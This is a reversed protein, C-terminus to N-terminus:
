ASAAMLCQPNSNPNSALAGSVAAAADRCALRGAVHLRGGRRLEEFGSPSQGQPPDVLISHSRSRAQNLLPQTEARWDFPPMCGVAVGRSGSVLGAKPDLNALLMVRARQACSWRGAPMRARERGGRASGGTLVGQPKSLRWARRDAPTLGGLVDRMRARAVVDRARYVVEGAAGLRAFQRANGAGVAERHPLLLTPAIGAGGQPVGAGGQPVGMPPLPRRLRNLERRCM